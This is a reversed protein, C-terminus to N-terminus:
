CEEFNTRIYLLCSSVLLTNTKSYQPPDGAANSLREAELLRRAERFYLANIGKRRLFSNGDTM